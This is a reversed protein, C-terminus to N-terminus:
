KSKDIETHFVYNWIGCNHNWDYPQDEDYYPSNEDNVEVNIIQAMRITKLSKVNENNILEQAIKEIKERNTKSQNDTTARITMYSPVRARMELRVNESTQKIAISAFLVNGLLFIILFMLISQAPKRFISTLTRKWMKM